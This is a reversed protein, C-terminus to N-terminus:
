GDSNLLVSMCTKHRSDSKKKMQLLETLKREQEDSLRLQPISHFLTHVTTDTGTM